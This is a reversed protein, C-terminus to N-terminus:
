RANSARAGRRARRPLTPSTGTSGDGCDVSDATGDRSTITDNDASGLLVDPGQGGDIVDSGGGGDLTEAAASGTLRDHSAGGTVIEVDPRVDDDEGTEGDNAAGDLTVTVPAVRSGYFAEDVGPGGEVIDGRDGTTAGSFGMDLIDDGDGGRLVDTGMGGNLLNSADNGTLLDPGFGGILGEVDSAIDDEEGAGGDNAVGDLSLSVPTGRSYWVVDFGPGGVIRDGIGDEAPTAGRMSFFDDGEEGILDDAGGLGDIQDSGAGGLIVNAQGSGALLDAGAGGVIDEVDSRIDDGEGWAGDQPEVRELEVTVPELRDGYSVLDRGGGGNVTDGPGDAAASPGMLFADDAPGGTLGDSGGGGSMIVPMTEPMSADVSGFDAGDGLDLIVFSPTTSCDVVLPGNAVCGPATTTLSGSFLTFRVVVGAGPSTLTLAEATADGAFVLADDVPDYDVTAGSAAAAPLFLSGASALLLLRPRPM